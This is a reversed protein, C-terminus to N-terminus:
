KERDQRKRGAGATNASGISLLALLGLATLQPIIGGTKPLVTYQCLAFSLEYQVYQAEYEWLYADYLGYYGLGRVQPLIRLDHPQNTTFYDRKVEWAEQENYDDISWYGVSQGTAGWGDPPDASQSLYAPEGEWFKQGGEASAWANVGLPPTTGIVEMGLAQWYGAWHDRWDSDGIDAAYPMQDSYDADVQRRWGIYEGHRAIATCFWQYVGGGEEYPPLVPLPLVAGEFPPMEFLPCTWIPTQDCKPQLPEDPYANM